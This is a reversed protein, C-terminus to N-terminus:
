SLRCGRCGEKGLSLVGLDVGISGGGDEDVEVKDTGSMRLRGSGVVVVVSYALRRRIVPIPLGPSTLTFATLVPVSRM